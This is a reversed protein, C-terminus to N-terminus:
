RNKRHRVYYVVVAIAIAVVLIIGIGHGSRFLESVGHWAFSAAAAHAFTHALSGIMGGGSHGGGNSHSAYTLAATHLTPSTM